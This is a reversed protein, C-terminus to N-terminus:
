KIIKPMIRKATKSNTDIARTGAAAAMEYYWAKYDLLEAYDKLEELQKEVLKKQKKICEFRQVITSDGEMVWAIYQRIQKIPM